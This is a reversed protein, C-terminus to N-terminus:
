RVDSDDRALVDYCQAVTKDGRDTNVKDRPGLGCAKFILRMAAVQEKTAPKAGKNVSCPGMLRGPCVRIVPFKDHNDLEFRQFKFVDCNDDNPARYGAAKAEKPFLIALAIGHYWRSRLTYITGDESVIYGYSSYTPQEGKTVLAVDEMTWNKRAM